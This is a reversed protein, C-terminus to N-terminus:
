VNVKRNIHERHMKNVHKLIKIVCGYFDQDQDQDQDQEAAIVNVVVKAIYNIKTLIAVVEMASVNQFKWILHAYLVILIEVIM